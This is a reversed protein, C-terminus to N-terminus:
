QTPIQQPLSLSNSNLTTQLRKRIYAFAIIGTILRASGSPAKWVEGFTAGSAALTSGSVVYFVFHRRLTKYHWLKRVVHVVASGLRLRLQDSVIAVTLCSSKLSATGQQGM